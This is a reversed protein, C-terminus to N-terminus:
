LLCSEIVKLGANVIVSLILSDPSICAPWLCLLQTNLVLTHLVCECKCVCVGQCVTLLHGCTLNPPPTSSNIHQPTSGKGAQSVAHIWPFWSNWPVINREFAPPPLANYSQARRDSPQALGQAKLGFVFLYLCSSWLSLISVSEWVCLSVLVCVCVCVCMYIFM